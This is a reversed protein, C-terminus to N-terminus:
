QLTSGTHLVQTRLPPLPFLPVSSTCVKYLRCVIIVLCGCQVNCVTCLSHLFQWEAVPVPVPSCQQVSQVIQVCDFGLEVDM